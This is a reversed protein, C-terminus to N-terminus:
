RCYDSLNYSNVKVSMMWFSMPGVNDPFILGKGINGYHHFVSSKYVGINYLITSVSVIIIEVFLQWNQSQQKGTVLIVHSEM